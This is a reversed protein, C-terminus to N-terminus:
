YELSCLIIIPPTPADCGPKTDPAELVALLFICRASVCKSLLVSYVYNKLNFNM